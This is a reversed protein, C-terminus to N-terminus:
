GNRLRWEWRRPGMVPRLGRQTEDVQGWWRNRHLDVAERAVSKCWLHDRKSRHELWLTLIAARQLNTGGFDAALLRTKEQAYLLQGTTDDGHSWRKVWCPHERM